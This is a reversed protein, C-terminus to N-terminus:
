VMYDMCIRVEYYPRVERDAIKLHEPHTGYGKLAAENDFVAELMVDANSSELPEAQVSISQMGPIKGQLSELGTKIGAAIHQKEEASYESKLQWLIIHKVM